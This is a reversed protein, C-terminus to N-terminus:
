DVVVRGGHTLPQRLEGRDDSRLWRAVNRAPERLHHRSFGSHQEHGLDPSRRVGLGLALEAPSQAVRAPPLSETGRVGLVLCGPSRSLRYPSPTGSRFAMPITAESM